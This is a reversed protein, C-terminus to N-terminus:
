LISQNVNPHALQALLTQNFSISEEVTKPSFLREYQTLHTLIKNLNHTINLFNKEIKQEKLAIGTSGIPGLLVIASNPPQSQHQLQLLREQINKLETAEQATPPILQLIEDVQDITQNIHAMLSQDKEHSSSKKLETEKAITQEAPGYLVPHVASTSQRKFAINVMIILLALFLFDRHSKFIKIMDTKNSNISKKVIIGELKMMYLKYELTLQFSM